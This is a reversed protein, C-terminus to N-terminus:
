QEDECDGRENEIPNNIRREELEALEEATLEQNLLEQDMTGAM